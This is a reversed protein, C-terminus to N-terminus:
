SLIYAARVRATQPLAVAAVGVIPLSLSQVCFDGVDDECVDFDRAGGAFGTGLAKLLSEKRTWFRVFLEDRAVRSEDAARQLAAQERDTFVRRALRLPDDIRRPAEYDVGVTSTAAIAILLAAGSHSLNFQPAAPNRLVPKGHTDVDITLQNTAVNAYKALLTRLWTRTTIYRSHADADAIATARLREAADLVPEGDVFQAARELTALWLDVEGLALPRADGISAARWPPIEICTPASVIRRM